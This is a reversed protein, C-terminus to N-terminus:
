NTVSIVTGMTSYVNDDKQVTLLLYPQTDLEVKTNASATVFVPFIKCNGYPLNSFDFSVSSDEKLIEGSITFLLGPYFNSSKLDLKSGDEMMGDLNCVNLNYPESEGKKVTISVPFNIKADLPSEPEPAKEFIRKALHRVKIHIEEVFFIGMVLIFMAIVVVVITNISMEMVGSKGVRKKMELAYGRSLFLVKNKKFIVKIYRLVRRGYFPTKWTNDLM